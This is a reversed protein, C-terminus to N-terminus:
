PARRCSRSTFGPRSGSTERTTGTGPAPGVLRYREAVDIGASAPGYPSDLSLGLTDGALDFHGHGVPSPGPFGCTTDFAASDTAADCLALHMRRVPCASAGDRAADLGGAATGALAPWPLLLATCVVVPHLAQLM